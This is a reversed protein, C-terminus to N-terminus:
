DGVNPQVDSVLPQATGVVVSVLVSSGDSLPVAILASTQSVFRVVPEGEPGAGPLNVPDTTQLATALEPTSLPTVRSLWQATTEGSKLQSWQEVFAVASTVYPDADPVQAAPATTTTAESGAGGTQSGGGDGFVANSGVLLVVVVTALALALRQPSRCLWAIADGVM